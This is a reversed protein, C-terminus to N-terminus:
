DPQGNLAAGIQSLPEALAQEVIGFAMAGMGAAAFAVFTFEMARGARRSLEHREATRPVRRREVPPGGIPPKCDNWATPASLLGVSWLPDQSYLGARHGKAWMVRAVVTVPGPM